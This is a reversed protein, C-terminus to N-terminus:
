AETRRRAIVVAVAAAILGFVVAIAQDM